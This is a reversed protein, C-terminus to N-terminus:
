FCRHYEMKVLGWFASLDNVYLFAMMEAPSNTSLHIEKAIKICIDPEQIHM